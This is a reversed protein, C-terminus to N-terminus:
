NEGFYSNKFSALLKTESDIFFLDNESIPLNNMKKYCQAYIQKPVKKLEKKNLHNHKYFYSDKLHVINFSEVKLIKSYTTNKILNSIEENLGVLDKTKEFRITFEDNGVLRIENSLNLEKITQLTINKQIMGQKKAGIPEFILQRFIKSNKFYSLNTYLSIFELYSDTNKVLSKDFERISNFNATKIDVSVLSFPESSINYPNGNMVKTEPYQVILKEFETYKENEKIDKEIQDKIRFWESKLDVSNSAILFEELKNNLDFDNKYLDFFYQFYPDEYIRIPLSYDEVFKKRLKPSLKNIM